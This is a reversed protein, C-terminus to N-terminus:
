VNPPSLVEELRAVVDPSVVGAVQMAGREYAEVGLVDRYFRRLTEYRGWLPETEAWGADTLSVGDYPEHELLGRSELRQLAETTAAPSRDLLSAVRGTPVPPGDSRQITRVALLYQVSDAM